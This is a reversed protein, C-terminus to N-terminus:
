YASSFILYSNSVILFVCHATPSPKSQPDGKKCSAPMATITEANPINLSIEFPIKKQRVAQRVFVTVATTMNMVLESFLQEAQEKLEKDMRITLNTTESM